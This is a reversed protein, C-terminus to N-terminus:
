ASRITVLACTLNLLGVPVQLEDLLEDIVPIPFKSKQTMANLHRYDIVPRWSEDKKKVMLLPSSFPSNSLRIVGSALMEKIQKELETKLLPPLRYPRMSVPTASPLLPITHDYPRRPPLGTPPEFVHKYEDLILQVEPPIPLDPTTLLSCVEIMTIEPLLATTGLLTIESGNHVFSLWHHDWDVWMPSHASLWDMGVIGDYSGLPFFKFSTLFKHGACSWVGDLLQSACPVMDGKAIKVLAKAMPSVGHIKDSLSVDLFSHSSGSDVIFILNLGQLQIRLQMTKAPKSTTKGLAAASVSMMHVESQIESAVSDNVDSNQLFEVMEQVVHLQVEQKCIHDKGWREGCIFCLGKAKCFTRLAGWKDESVTRRYSDVPRREEHGKQVSSQVASSTPPPPLPLASARRANQSNIMTSPSITGLEEHLLALQYATDLDPPQQIGVAVRVAPKLGEM